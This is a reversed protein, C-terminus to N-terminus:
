KKVIRFAKNGIVVIYIGKQMTSLSIKEKQSLSKTESLVIGSIHIIRVTEGMANEVIIHDEASTPYVNFPSNDRDPVSISNGSDEYVARLVTNNNLTGSYVPDTSVTAQGSQNSNIYTMELDMILDSSTLDCQHVEVALQNVGEVLISRPISFVGYIGNNYTTSFTSHSITGSPMNVRGVEQGNVYVVAGDDVYVRIEFNDKGTPNTIVVKKRFYATTYKNSSNSGYSISTTHGLNGYGLPANGSKWQNDNFSASTWNSGPVQNGDYYRWNEKYNVLNIRNDESYIEWCKFNYGPISMAEIEVERGRFSKMLIQDDTIKLGNFLYSAEGTNSAIDITRVAASNLFRNSIHSLLYDPRLNGFERMSNINSNFNQGHGWRNKHRVIQKSIKGAISDLVHSVRAPELTSSLHISAFDIFRNRFTPSNNMLRAFIKACTAGSNFTWDLMNYNPATAQNFGFDTDFLIWRWRGNHIKKWVKLNNHPWDTNGYYIQAFFYSIMNDLDAMEGVAEYVSPQSLNSNLVFSTLKSFEPHDTVQDVEVGAELLYFEEEDLDYNTYLYDKNTRERINQIGFYEGNIYIIAPEYAQYDIDMRHMILSQMFADRMMSQGWDNGSNRLSIDKYKKGPKTAQFIDYRLRNEGFKKRPSIKLSKQGNSRTWGGMIAIDLEQNLRSKGNIDFLEFNAPRSWDQNWNRPISQGRGPIGNTGGTYIGITNDYLNRPDTILSVVPLDIQNDFIFSAGAIDSPVKDDSFARARIVITKSIFMTAGNVYKTSTRTPETGDTTYHITEGTPPLSFFMSTGSTFIGGQVSFLPKACQKTVVKKGNNSTGFSYDNFFGWSNSGDTQRGYSTNRYQRPYIVVDLQNGSLDYLYLRGGEPDLKFGAHKDMEDREFWLIHFDGPRVIASSPRWKKKDDTTDTFYFQSLNVAEDGENYLEVWMSYNYGEDMVASVNNSMLENIKLRYNKPNPDEGPTPDQNTGIVTVPFNKTISENRYEIKASLTINVSNAPRKLAGDTLLIDEDSSSWSVSAAGDDLLFPLNLSYIVYNLNENKGRIVEETLATYYGKIEDSIRIEEIEEPTLARNYIRFDNLYSRLGCDNYQSKGIYNQHTNGLSQPTIKVVDGLGDKRVGVDKGNLYLKIEGGTINGGSFSYKGTVAVHSWQNSPLFGDSNEIQYENGSIDTNKLAFRLGNGGANTTLFMNQNQGRGFDFIRAWSDAADPKIWLMITFDTLDATLGAPLLLYDAAPTVVNGNNQNELRLSKEERFDSSVIRANGFRSADTSSTKDISNPIKGDTGSHNLEYHYKLNETLDAATVPVYIGLLLLLAVAVRLSNNRQIYTM